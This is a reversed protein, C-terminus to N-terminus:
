VEMATHFGKTEIAGMREKPKFTDRLVSGRLLLTPRFSDFVHIRSSDRTLNSPTSEQTATAATAAILRCHHRDCFLFSLEVSIRSNDHRSAPRNRRRHLGFIPLECVACTPRLFYTSHFNCRSYPGHTIVFIISRRFHDPFSAGRVFWVM